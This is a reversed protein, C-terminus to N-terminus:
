EAFQREPAASPRQSQRTEPRQNAGSERTRDNERGYATAAKCPGRAHQAPAHLAGADAHNPCKERRNHSKGNEQAGM